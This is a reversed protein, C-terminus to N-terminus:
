NFLNAPKPIPRALYNRGLVKTKSTYFNFLGQPNTIMKQKQRKEAEKGFVDEGVRTNHKAAM